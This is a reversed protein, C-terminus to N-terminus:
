GYASYDPGIFSESPFLEFILSISVNLPFGVWTIPVSPLSKDYAYKTPNFFQTLITRGAQRGAIEDKFWGNVTNSWGERQKGEELDTLFAPPNFKQLKELKGPM